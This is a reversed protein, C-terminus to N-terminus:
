SVVPLPQQRNEKHYGLRVWAMNVSGPPNKGKFDFGTEILHNVVENKTMQPNDEKLRKVVSVINTHVRHSHTTSKGVPKRSRVVDNGLRYVGPRIKYVHKKHSYLTSYIVNRAKERESFLEAEILFTVANNVVLTGNNVKMIDVLSNWISQQKFHDPQLIHSGNPHIKYRERELELGKELADAYEGWFKEDDQSRKILNRAEQQKERAEKIKDLTEEEWTIRTVM